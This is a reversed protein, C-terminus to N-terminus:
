IDFLFKEEQRPEHCQPGENAVSNVRTSVPHMEMCDAPYTQLLRQLQDPDQAAPDLWEDFHPPDIVAPMRDHLCRILENSAITIIVCSEIPPSGDKPDWRDWLGALAFLRQNKVTINFPQRARGAKKWEYFGNVPILCRRTKFAKRFMPKEAVTEGRANIPAPGHEPGPSHEPIFGWHLAALERPSDPSRKLLAAIQQTPAVNYRPLLQPRAALQLYEVLDEDSTAQTVRGCM